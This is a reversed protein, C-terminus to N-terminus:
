LPSYSRDATMAAPAEGTLWALLRHKYAGVQKVPIKEMANMSYACLLATQQSLRLIEDTGQKLLETMTDIGSPLHEFSIGYHELVELVKRGFGIEANMLDKEILIASFGCRGAIGTVPRVAADAPLHPLIMTGPDDPRNTNRINIPINSSRVPFVADEHLVTAGMRILGNQTAKNYYPTVVLVGDAGAQCAYRTLSVAYATDNSGTGAIVPVRGAARDISYCLVRRHEEDSLTSGEGTTGAIVLANIGKDIQWDILRGLTDYDVGTETLPTILATAVGRFILNKTMAKEHPNTPVYVPQMTRPDLGTYYM